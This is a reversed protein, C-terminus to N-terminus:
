SNNKNNILQHYKWYIHPRYFTQFYNWFSAWPFIKTIRKNQRFLRSALYIQNGMLCLFLCCTRVVLSHKITKNLHQLMKGEAKNETLWRLEVIEVKSMKLSSQLGFPVNKFVNNRLFLCFIIVNQSFFNEFDIACMWFKMSLSIVTSMDSKSGLWCCYCFWSWRLSLQAKYVTRCGIVFWHPDAANAASGAPRHQQWLCETARYHIPVSQSFTLWYILRAM